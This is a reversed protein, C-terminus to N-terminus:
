NLKKARCARNSCKPIKNLLNSRFSGIENFQTLNLGPIQSLPAVEDVSEQAQSLLSVWPHKPKIGLLSDICHLISMKGINRNLNPDLRRIHIAEKAERTVQSPDKDIINFNSISPLPHHHDTCHKLIASTSSKCHEKVREGLARSTESVYASKCGDAQCEWHYVIDKKKTLQSRTKQTCWCQSSPTLEKSVFRYLSTGLSRKSLNVWVQFIPVSIFFQKKVVLGTDPHILPGSKDSKAWKDIIWQLYNNYHLVKGLHEIEKVLIDPNSCVNEARDM